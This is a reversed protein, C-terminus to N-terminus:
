QKKFGGKTIDYLLKQWENHNNIIIGVSQWHNFVQNNLSVILINQMENNIQKKQWYFLEPTEHEVIIIPIQFFPLIKEGLHYNIRGNILILDFGIDRPININSQAPFFTINQPRGSKEEFTNIKQPDSIIFLNHGLKALDYEFDGIFPIVLINLLDKQISKHITNQIINM